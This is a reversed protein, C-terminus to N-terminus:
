PSNSVNKGNGAIAAAAILVVLIVGLIVATGRHGHGEDDVLFSSGTMQPAARAISLSSAANSAVPSIALGAAALMM